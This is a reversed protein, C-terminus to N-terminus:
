LQQYRDWFKKTEEEHPCIEIVKAANNIKKFDFIDYELNWMQAWNKFNLNHSNYYDKRGFIREFIKGGKNNIIFIKFELEKVQNLAWLGQTDYLATLDGLLAWGPQKPTLGGLFYSVQGDIGNLGRTANVKFNKDEFTATLDWQRIPLSNGLYIETDTPAFSSIQSFVAPESRSFEKLLANLNKQKKTDEKKFDEFNPSNTIDLELFFKELNVHLLHGGPTGSFPKSSISLVPKPTTVELDRWLRHTPVDGIRLIGDIEYNSQRARIFLKDANFFKLHDFGTANRLQSPGEAYFPINSKKLFEKVAVSESTNLGGIIAFINKHAKLFANLKEADYKNVTKESKTSVLKFKFAGVSDVTKVGPLPEDFCVNLHLPAASDLTLSEDFNQDIDLSKQAYVGYLGVQEAVQPAGTGRFRQPRDATIAILPLGSYYAEMMSPLLEGAATGSTTIVAVPKQTSKIRGLAFFGASREDFFSIKNFENSMSLLEVFPSNRAGACVCITKVNFTKLTNLIKQALDINSM